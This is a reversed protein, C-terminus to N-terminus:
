SVSALTVGSGTVGVEAAFLGGSGPPDSGDPNASTIYLRDGVFVCSTVKPSPVDVRGVIDGEPSLRLVAFGGWVAVWIGGEEDVCIGDILGKDRSLRFLPEAIDLSPREMDYAARWLTQALTDVYYIVGGEPSWAIGNPLTLGLVKRQFAGAIVVGISGTGEHRDRTTSGVWIRGRPDVAGDNTREAQPDMWTGAILASNGVSDIHDIGTPGAVVLGGDSAAAAFTTEPAVATSTTEGGEVHRYLSAADIDLWTVAEAVPDWFPSEGLGCNTDAVLAATHSGNM